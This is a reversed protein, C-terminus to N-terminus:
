RIRLVGANTTQAHAKIKITATGSSIADPLRFTIQTFDLGPVPRVDSAPIDYSQNNSDSLNVVVSSAPEGAALQLNTVFLIIRSNKDSGPTLWNVNNLLDFPDRRLLLDVAAAGNSVAGSDDLFLQPAASPFTIELVPHLEIGNPAVGTQGHLFDFMGVGALRVPVNTTQFSTTATFQDDFEARANAIASAFPSSGGVCAPFPIEAIFTNGADDSIVLHYDSDDELKYKVLTGWIVWKTTEYPSVRNNAPISGPTPWSRMDVISTFSMSSLNVAGADLDTGTKVSWREVGCSASPTPTVTPTPTASGCVFQSSSNRPNALGIVFDNKNNDTDNCGNGARFVANMNNPSPARGTGEFCSASGYGVLDVIGNGSPCTGSLAVTSNVLAVKGNTASMASGGSADPTPLNTTGGSGQAEQILYYHGPSISGSLATVQWTGSTAPAYQISWGSLDVTSNSLNYIEIFDNKFTSGSNGGGGYLQSIVVSNSLSPSTASAPNLHNLVAVGLALLAVAIILRRLAAHEAILKALALILPSRSSM